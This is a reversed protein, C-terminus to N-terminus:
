GEKVYIGSPLRGGHSTIEDGYARFIRSYKEWKNKADWEAAEEATTPYPTRKFDGLELLGKDWPVERLGPWRFYLPPKPGEKKEQDAYFSLTRVDFVDNDTIFLGGARVSGIIGPLAESMPEELWEPKQSFAKPSYLYFVRNLILVDAPRERLREHQRADFLDMWEFRVLRRIEPNVKFYANSSKEPIRPEGVYKFFINSPDTDGYLSKFTWVEGKEATELDRPSIAYGTVSLNWGDVWERIQDEGGGPNIEGGVEHLLDYAVMAYGFPENGSDGCGCSKIHLRLDGERIRRQIIDKISARELERECIRHTHSLVNGSVTHGVTEYNVTYPLRLWDRDAELGGERLFRVYEQLGLGRMKAAQAFHPLLHAPLHKDRLAPETSTISYGRYGAKRAVLFDYEQGDWPIRAVERMKGDSPTNVVIHGYNLEEPAYVMEIIESALQVDDRSQKGLRMAEVSSLSAAM